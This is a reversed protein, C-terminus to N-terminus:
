AIRVPVTEATTRVEHLTSASISLVMSTSRVVVITRLLMCSTEPIYSTSIGNTVNSQINFYTHTNYTPIIQIMGVSPSTIPEVNEGLVVFLLKVFLDITTVVWQLTVCLRKSPLDLSLEVGTMVVVVCAPPGM